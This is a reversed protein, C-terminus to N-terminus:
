RRAITRAYQNNIETRKGASGTYLELQGQLIKVKTDNLRSFYAAFHKDELAVELLPRQQQKALRSFIKVADHGIGHQPHVYGDGRLIAVM